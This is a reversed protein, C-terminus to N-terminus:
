ANVVAAAIGLEREARLWDEEPTGGQYGRAVWYSYALASVDEHTPQYAAAPTAPEPATAALPEAVSTAPTHKKHSPAAKRRAPTATANQSVAIETESTRKRAM